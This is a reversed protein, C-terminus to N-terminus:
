EGPLTDPSLNLTITGDAIRADVLKRLGDLTVARWTKVIEPRERTDCEGCKAERGNHYFWFEYRNTTTNLYTGTRKVPYPLITIPHNSKTKM